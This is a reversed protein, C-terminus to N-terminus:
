VIPWPCIRAGPNYPPVTVFVEYCDCLEPATKCLDTASAPAPAFAAFVLGAFLPVLLIRRM